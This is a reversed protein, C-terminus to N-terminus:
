SFIEVIKEKIHNTVDKYGASTLHLKDSNWYTARDNENLVSHWDFCCDVIATNYFKAVEEVAREKIFMAYNSYQYDDMAQMAALDAFGLVQATQDDTVDSVLRSFSSPQLVTIIKANPFTKRFNNLISHMAGYIHNTDTDSIGSGIWTEIGFGDNAGGMFVILAVDGTTGAAIYKECLTATRNWMPRYGKSGTTDGCISSSVVGQNDANMGFETCMATILTAMGYTYSDGMFIATKGALSSLDPKNIGKIAEKFEESECTWEVKWPDISPDYEDARAVVPPSSAELFPTSSASTDVHCYVAYATNEPITFTAYTQYNITEETFTPFISTNESATGIIKKEADFFALYRQEGYLYISNTKYEVGPHLDCAYSGSNPGAGYSGVYGYVIESKKTFDIKNYADKAFFNFASFGVAGDAVGVDTMSAVVKKLQEDSCALTEREALPYGLAFRDKYADTVTFRVTAANEPASTSVIARTQSPIEVTSIFAGSADYWAGNVKSNYNRYIGFFYIAEGAAVQYAQTVHFGDAAAIEGTTAVIYSNEFEIYNYRSTSVGSLKEATTANDALKDTTVSGDAVTTTAEPHEDLWGSVATAVQEDTPQGVNALADGVAKADAAKGSITLTTDLEVNQTSDSGNNKLEELQQRATQDVFSDYKKGNLTLSQMENYTDAM